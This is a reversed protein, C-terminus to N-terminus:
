NYLFYFSRLVPKGTKRDIRDFLFFCSGLELRAKRETDFWWVYCAQRYGEFECETTAALWMYSFGLQGHLDPNHESIAFVERPVTPNLKYGVAWKLAAAFGAGNNNVLVYEREVDGQGTPLYLQGVKRVNYNAPTQPGGANIAENWDRDLIVKVRSPLVHIRGGTPPELLYGIRLGSKAADLALKFTGDRRAKEAQVATVGIERGVKAFDNGQAITMLKTSM